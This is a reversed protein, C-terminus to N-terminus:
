SLYDRCRMVILQFPKTTDITFVVKFLTGFGIILILIMFSLIFKLLVDVM